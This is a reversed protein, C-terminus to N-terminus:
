SINPSYHVDHIFQKNGGSTHVAIIGKGEIKVQKGDGLEVHSSYDKDLEEFASQNGTLHNSCGSDLYWIESSKKDSMTSFFLKNDDNKTSFNVIKKGKQNEEKEKYWCDKDSHNFNKCRTCRFYCNKSEHGAKRCILCYSNSNGFTQQWLSDSRGRGRGRSQFNRGCNRSNIQGRFSNERGKQEPKSNRSNDEKAQFAHEMPQNNYKSVRREHAELSGMLEYQTFKTLDKTEEIVAVIHEFKQPFGRLIKEVVKKEPIVDGCSKIQNIIEAVRSSFDKVLEGEKMSLNDFESWLSQLKISIVKESGQFEIKLTEWAEKALKIGFIRPYITKSVGQQIIRLAMANKKVNEKYEKEKEEIRSSSGQQDQREQYGEEVIDWLDQSLFITEM